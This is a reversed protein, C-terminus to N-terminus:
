AKVGLRRAARAENFSKGAQVLLGCGCCYHDSKPDFGSWYSYVVAKSGKLITEGCCRCVHEKRVTVNDKWTGNGFRALYTDPTKQTM